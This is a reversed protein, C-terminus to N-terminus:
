SSLYLEITKKIGNNNLERCLNAIMEVIGPLSALEPSFIKDNNLIASIAREAAEISNWDTGVLTSCLFVSHEDRYSYKENNRMGYYINNGKGAPMYFLFFSSLGISMLPPYKDFKKFYRIITATNRSNMKSSGQMTINLLPYRIFSNEFRDIVQRAFDPASPYNDIITPIIELNMLQETFPRFVEDMVSDYVTNLGALYATAAVTTNSGNLIRLKLEKYREISEDVVARKDTQIFSLKQKIYDNGEIAWLLYPEVTAHIHDTYQINENWNILDNKESRGPVIRDVLTNCFYNSNNIWNSFEVPLKNNTAHQLVFQKLLNGNNSLLETPLIVMGKQEDGNFAKFRHWLYATLKAPFSKPAEDNINEQDFVLGAETTNSVVIEISPEAACQIIKQWQEHAPIVRSVCAVITRQEVEEGNRRGKELLTYLNNQATFEDVSNGTSKVIVVRGNFCNNKNAKDILYDVLGRLLIGTGFQIVKEPLHFLRENLGLEEPYSKFFDWNLLAADTTYEKMM